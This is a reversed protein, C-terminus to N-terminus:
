ENVTIKLSIKLLPPIKEGEAPFDCLKGDRELLLPLKSSINVTLFGMRILGNGACSLLSGARPSGAGVPGKCPAVDRRNKRPKLMQPHLPRM